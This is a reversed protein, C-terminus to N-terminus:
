RYASLCPWKTFLGSADKVWVRVTARKRWRSVEQPMSALRCIAGQRDGARCVLWRRWGGMESVPVHICKHMGVYKYMSVCVHVRANM